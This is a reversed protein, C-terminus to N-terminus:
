LAEICSKKNNEISRDQLLKLAKENSLKIGNKIYYEKQLDGIPEIYNLFGRKELFYNAALSHILTIPGKISYSNNEKELEAKVADIDRHNDDFYFIESFEVMQNQQNKLYSLFSNLSLGKSSKLGETNIPSSIIGPESFHFGLNNPIIESPMQFNFSIHTQKLQKLTTHNFAEPRATLALVYHGKKIAERLLLGYFPDLLSVEPHKKTFQWFDEALLKEIQAESAMPNKTKLDSRLSSLKTRRYKIATFIYKAKFLTDDLDTIFLAKNEQKNLESFFLELLMKNNFRLFDNQPKNKLEALYNTVFERANNITLQKVEAEVSFTIFLLILNLIFIKALQGIVKKM